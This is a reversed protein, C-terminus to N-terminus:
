MENRKKRQHLFRQGFLSRSNLGYGALGLQNRASKTPARAQTANTTSAKVAPTTKKVASAPKSAPSISKKETGGPKSAASIPKKVPGTSKVTAAPKKAPATSTPKKPADTIKKQVSVSKGTTTLTKSPNPKPATYMSPSTVKNKGGTAGSSLGLPNSATQSRPADARSWDKIANGYDQAGDGYRRISGNISEGIGNIGAGVASVAGGAMSGASGVVNSVTPALADSIKGLVWGTAM